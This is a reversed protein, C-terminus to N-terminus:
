GHKSLLYPKLSTDPRTTTTSLVLIHFAVARVKSHPHAFVWIRSLDHISYAPLKYFFSRSVASSIGVLVTRTELLIM